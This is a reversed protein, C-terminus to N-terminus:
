LQLLFHRPGSTRDPGVTANRSLKARDNSIQRLFLPSIELSTGSYVADASDLTTEQTQVVSLPYEFRLAGNVGNTGADRDHVITIAFPPLRIHNFVYM